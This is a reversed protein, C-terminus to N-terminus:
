RSSLFKSLKNGFNPWMLQSQIEHKLRRLEDLSLLDWCSFSLAEEPSSIESSVINWKKHDSKLRKFHIDQCNLVIWLKAKTVTEQGSTYTLHKTEEMTELLMQGDEVQLPVRHWFKFKWRSSRSYFFYVLYKPKTFFVLIETDTNETNLYRNRNIVSILINGITCSKDFFNSGFMKQWKAM